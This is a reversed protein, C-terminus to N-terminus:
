PFDRKLLDQYIIVVPLNMLDIIVEFKIIMIKM